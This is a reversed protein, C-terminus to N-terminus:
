GNIMSSFSFLEEVLDVFDFRSSGGVDTAEVAKRKWELIRVEREWRWKEKEGGKVEVEYDDWNVKRVKWWFLGVPGPWIAM